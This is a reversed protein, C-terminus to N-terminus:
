SHYMSLPEGTTSLIIPAIYWLPGDAIDRPPRALKHKRGKNAEGLEGEQEDRRWADSVFEAGKIYVRADDAKSTLQGVTCAQLV